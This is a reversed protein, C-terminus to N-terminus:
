ARPARGQYGLCRRRPRRRPPEPAAVAPPPRAQAVPSTPSVPPITSVTTPGATPAGARALRLLPHSGKGLISSAVSGVGSTRMCRRSAVGDLGPREVHLAVIQGPKPHGAVLRPGRTGSPRRPRAHRRRGRRPQCGMTWSRHPPRARRRLRRAQVAVQQEGARGRPAGDTFTSSASPSRARSSKPTTPSRSSSSSATRSWAFARRASPDAATDAAAHRPSGPRRWRSRRHRAHAPRATRDGPRNLDRGDHDRGAGAAGLRPQDSALDAEAQRPLEDAGRHASRARPARPGSGAAAWSQAAM